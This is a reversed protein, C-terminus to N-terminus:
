YVAAQCHCYWHGFWIRPSPPPLYTNFSIQSGFREQVVCLFISSYLISFFPKRLFICKVCKRYHLFSWQWEGSSCNNQCTWILGVILCHSLSFLHSFVVYPTREDSRKPRIRSRDCWLFITRQDMVSGKETVFDQHEKRQCIWHCKFM